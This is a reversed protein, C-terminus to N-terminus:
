GNWLPPYAAHHHHAHYGGASYHSSVDLLPFPFALFSLFSISPYFLVWFFFMEFGCECFMLMMMDCLIMMMMVCAYVCMTMMMMMECLMEYVCVCARVCVCRQIANTM